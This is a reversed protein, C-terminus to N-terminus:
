FNLLEELKKSNTEFDQENFCEYDVDDDHKKGDSMYSDEESAMVMFAAATGDVAVAKVDEVAETEKETGNRVGENKSSTRRKYYPKRCGGVLLFVFVTVCFYSVTNM